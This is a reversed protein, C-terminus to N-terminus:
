KLTNSVDEEGYEFEHIHKIHEPMGKKELNLVDAFLNELKIIFNEMVLEKRKIKISEMVENYREELQSCDSIEEINNFSFGINHKEVHKQTEPCWCAISPLGAQLYEEEKNTLTFNVQDKEGDENNFILIGYKFKILEEMMKHYLTPPYLKAGTPPYSEYASINGCFMHVENGMEVLKKMIDYLSRYAFNETQMKDGPPNAGGEYVLARRQPILEEDYEVIGDNCYSYLVINPVKVNHLKNTIRQIPQSVYILGNVNNFMEREALPITRRRISDLDHLDAIIPIKDGVVEKIWQVQYDPENNWSIVDVGNHVYQKISNQFQRKNQWVSMTDHRDSGWSVKNGLGHVNYGVKKLAIMKKVVRICHHASAELIKLPKGHKNLIPKDYDRM